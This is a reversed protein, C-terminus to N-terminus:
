ISMAAKSRTAPTKAEIFECSSIRLNRLSNSVVPSIRSMV